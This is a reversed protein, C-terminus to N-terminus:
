WLRSALIHTGRSVLRIADHTCATRCIGCGYCQVPDVFATKRVTSYGIAGFQCLGVCARCGVCADPDIEAIYEGKFFLRFSYRRSVMALCDSQDCNCIAGIFPTKFTWITHVMGEKEFAKHLSFAEEDTLTEFQPVYPGSRFTELFAEKVDLLKEPDLGLGFCYCADRVGTTNKRCICPMRVISNSLDLVRKIDEIPVVQGFHDRRYRREQFSYVLQRLWGPANMARRFRDELRTISGNGVDQIFTRIYERRSMDELLDSSFNAANLYWKKGEGHQHCFQCV